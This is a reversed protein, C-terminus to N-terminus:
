VAPKPGLSVVTLGEPKFFVEAARAVDEVSIEDILALLQDLTRFPEGYLEVSREHFEPTGVAALMRAGLEIAWAQRRLWEDIDDDATALRRAEGVLELTATPDLPEYRPRPLEVAGRAFFDDRVQAPWAVTRLIRVPREADRLLKAVQRIRDARGPSRM